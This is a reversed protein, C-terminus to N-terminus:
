IYGSNLKNKYGKQSIINDYVESIITLNISTHYIRQFCTLTDLKLSTKNSFM